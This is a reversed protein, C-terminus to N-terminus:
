SGEAKPLLERCRARIEYCRGRMHGQASGGIKNNVCCSDSHQHRRAFRPSKAAALVADPSPSRKDLEKNLAIVVNQGAQYVKTGASFDNDTVRRMADSAANFSLVLQAYEPTQKCAESTGGFSDRFQQTMASSSGEPSVAAQVAIARNEICSLAVLASSYLVILDNPLFLTNIAYSGGAGIALSTTLDHHAKFVPAIVAAAALGFTAIDLATHRTRFENRRQQTDKAWQDISKISSSLRPLADEVAKSAVSSSQYENIYPQYACGSLLAAAAVLLLKVLIRASMKM